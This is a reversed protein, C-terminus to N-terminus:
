RREPTSASMHEATCLDRYREESQEEEERSEEPSRRVAAGDRVVELGVDLEREEAGQVTLEGGGCLPGESSELTGAVSALVM